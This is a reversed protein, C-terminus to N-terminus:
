FNVIRYLANFEQFLIRIALNLAGETNFRIVYRLGNITASGQENSILYRLNVLRNKYTDTDSFNIKLSSPGPPCSHGKILLM